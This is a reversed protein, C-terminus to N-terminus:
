GTPCASVQPTADRLKKAPTTSLAIFSHRTTQVGGGLRAFREAAAQTSVPITPREPRLRLLAKSHELLGPRDGAAVIQPDNRRFWVL